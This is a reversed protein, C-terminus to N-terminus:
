AQRTYGSRTNSQGTEGRRGQEQRASVQWDPARETERLGAQRVMRVM